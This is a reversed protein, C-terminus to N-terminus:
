KNDKDFYVEKFKLVLNDIVNGKLKGVAYYGTVAGILRGKSSDLRIPAPGEEDLSKIIADIMKTGLPVMVGTAILKDEGSKKIFIM